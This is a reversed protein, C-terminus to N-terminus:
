KKTAICLIESGFTSLEQGLAFMSELFGEDIKKQDLLRQMDAHPLLKPFFTSLQLIHYSNRKLLSSIEIQSMAGTTQQMEDEMLTRGSESIINLQRGLIRHISDKNTVSLVLISNEGMVSLINRLLLQPDLVEHLISMALVLDFERRGVHSSLVEEALGQHFEIKERLAEPLKERSAAICEPIPEIVVGQNFEIETISSQLGCGIELVSSFNKGRLAERLAKRRFHEQKREFPISHYQRSYDELDRL